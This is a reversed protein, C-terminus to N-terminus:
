WNTSVSFHLMPKGGLDDPHDVPVGLDLKASLREEYRWRVGVGVSALQGADGRRDRNLVAGDIFSIAQFDGSKLIPLSRSQLEISAVVGKSAYGVTEDFGRVRGVGGASIQDSSLLTSDAWQAQGRGVLTAIEGWKWTREFELRGIWSEAGDAGLAIFDADDSGLIGQGPSYLVSADLRTMGWRDTRRGKWGTGIQFFRVQSSSQDSFSYDNSRFELGARWEQSMSHWRPLPIRYGVALRSFNGSQDIPGGSNSESQTYGASIELLHRIPLPIEYIGSFGQLNKFELASTYQATIRHDLGFLDGYQAGLFIRENGLNDSLQNDIGAYARWSKKARVRLTLDLVEPSTGDCYSISARRLPNENLWELDALVVDGSIENGPRTRFAAASFEAGFSPKGSVLVQGARAPCIVLAIVGSTIEQEPFSVQVFPRGLARFSQELKSNLRELSHLSVPRGIVEAALQQIEGQESATFGELHIGNESKQQLALASTATSAIAMGRLSPLLVQDEGAKVAGATAADDHIARDVVRGEAPPTPRSADDAGFGFVPMPVLSCLSAVVTTSKMGPYFLCPRRFSGAVKHFHIEM